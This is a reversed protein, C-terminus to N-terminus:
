YNISSLSFLLIGGSGMVDGHESEGDSVGGLGEVMGMNLRSAVWGESSTHPGYGGPGDEWSSSSATITVTVDSCTAEPTYTYTYTTPLTETAYVTTESSPSVPGTPSASCSSVTETEYCTTTEISTTTSTFTSNEGPQYAISTITSGPLTRTAYQTLTISGGPATLTAGPLTTTEYQTVTASAGPATITFTPGQRTVISTYVSSHNFGPATYFSAFTSGPLTRTQTLTVTAPPSEPGVPISCSTESATIFSTYTAGPLTRTYTIELPGTAPGVPFTCSTVTQVSNLTITLTAGEESFILTEDITRGPQVSVMTSTYASEITSYIVETAAPLTSYQTVTTPAEFFTSVQDLKDAEQRRISPDRPLSKGRHVTYQSDTDPGRYLDISGASRDASARSIVDV